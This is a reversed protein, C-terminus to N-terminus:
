STQFIQFTEIYFDVTVVVIIAIFWILDSPPRDLYMCVYENVPAKIGNGDCCMRMKEYCSFVYVRVCVYGRGCESLMFM